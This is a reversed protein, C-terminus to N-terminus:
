QVPDQTACCTWESKVADIPKAGQTGVRGIPQKKTTGHFWRGDNDTVFLQSSLLAAM